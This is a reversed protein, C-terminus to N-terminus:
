EGTHTRAAGYIRSITLIATTVTVAATFGLVVIKLRYIGLFLTTASTLFDLGILLFMAGFVSAANASLTVHSWRRWMLAVGIATCAAAMSVWGSVFLVTMVPDSALAYVGPRYREAGLIAALWTLWTM